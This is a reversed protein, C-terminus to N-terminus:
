IKRPGLKFKSLQATSIFERIFFRAEIEEGSPSTWSPVLIKGNPGNQVFKAIGEQVGKKYRVENRAKKAAEETLEGAEQQADITQVQERIWSRDEAKWDGRIYFIAGDALLSKLVNLGENLGRYGITADHARIIASLHNFPYEQGGMNFDRRTGPKTSFEQFPYASRGVLNDNGDGAAAVVIKRVEVVPYTPKDNADKILVLEDTPNGQDDRKRKFGAEVLRVGYNGAMLPLPPAPDKYEEPNLSVDLDDTFEVNAPFDFKPADATQTM